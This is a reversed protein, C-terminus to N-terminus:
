YSLKGFWHSAGYVDSEICSFTIVILLWRVVGFFKIRCQCSISIGDAPWPGFALWLSILVYYKLLRCQRSKSYLFTHSMRTTNGYNARQEIVTCLRLHYSHNGFIPRFIFEKTDHLYSHCYALLSCVRSYTKNGRSKKNWKENGSLSSNRLHTGSKNSGRPFKMELVVESTCTKPRLALPTLIIISIRFLLFM